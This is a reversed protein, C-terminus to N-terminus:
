VALTQIKQADLEERGSRAFPPASKVEFCGSSLEAAMPLQEFWALKYNFKLGPEGAQGWPV